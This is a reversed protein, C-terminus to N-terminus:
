QLGPKGSTRPINPLPPMTRDMPITQASQDTLALRHDDTHTWHWSGAPLPKSSLYTYQAAHSGDKRVVTTMRLNIVFQSRVPKGNKMAPKTIMKQISGRLAKVMSPRLEYAPSVATVTGHTDVHVLVPLLHPQSASDGDAPNALASVGVLALLLAFLTLHQRNM